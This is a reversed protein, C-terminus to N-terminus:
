WSFCFIAITGGFDYMCGLFKKSSVKCGLSGKNKKFEKYPIVRIKKFLKGTKNGTQLKTQRDAGHSM